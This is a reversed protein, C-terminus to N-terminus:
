NGFSGALVTLFGAAPDLVVLVTFLHTEGSDSASFKKTSEGSSKTSPAVTNLVYSVSYYIISFDKKRNGSFNGDNLHRQM